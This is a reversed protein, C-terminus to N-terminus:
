KAMFVNLMPDSRHRQLVKGRTYKRGSEGTVTPTMRRTAPNAQVLSVNRYVFRGLLM